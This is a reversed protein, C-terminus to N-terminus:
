GTQRLYIFNSALQALADPLARDEAVPPWRLILAAKFSGELGEARWAPRTGRATSLSLETM